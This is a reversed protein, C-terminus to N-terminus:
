WQNITPNKCPENGQYQDSQVTALFITNLHLSQDPIAKKYDKIPNIVTVFFGLYLHKTKELMRHAGKPARDLYMNSCHAMVM